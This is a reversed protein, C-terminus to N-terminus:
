HLRRRLDPRWGFLFLVEAGLFLPASFVQALNDVLAPRRGEIAHGMFQLVWGAVFFGAHVKWSWHLAFVTAAGLWLALSVSGGLVRDIRVYYVTLATLAALTAWIGLLGFTSLAIIPIGVLHALRNWPDRHYAAYSALLTPLSKM